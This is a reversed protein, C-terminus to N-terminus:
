VAWRYHEEAWKRIEDDRVHLDPKDLKRFPAEANTPEYELMAARNTMPEHAITERLAEIVEEHLEDSEDLAADNLLLAKYATGVALDPYGLDLYARAVDLLLAINYPYEEQFGCLQYLNNLGVRM